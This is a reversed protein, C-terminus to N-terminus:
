SESKYNEEMYMYTKLPIKGASKEILIKYCDAEHTVCSGATAEEQM